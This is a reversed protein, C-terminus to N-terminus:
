ILGWVRSTGRRPRKNRVGALGKGVCAGCKGVCAGCKGMCAGCKGVCAGRQGRLAWVQGRLGRTARAPGTNGV